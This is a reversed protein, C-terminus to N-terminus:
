RGFCCQMLPRFADNVCMAGSITLHLAIMFPHTLGTFSTPVRARNKFIAAELKPVTILHLKGAEVPDSTELDKTFKHFEELAKVLGVEDDRGADELRCSLTALQRLTTEKLPTAVMALCQDPTVPTTFHRCAEFAQPCLANLTKFNMATPVEEALDTQKLNILRWVPTTRLIQTREPYRAFVEDAPSPAAASASASASPLAPLDKPTGLELLRQFVHPPLARTTLIQLAPIMEYRKQTYRSAFLIAEPYFEIPIPGSLILQKFCAPQQCEITLKVAQLLEEPRSLAGCDILSKLCSTKGQSAAQCAYHTLERPDQCTRIVEVMMASSDISLARRVLLERWQTSLLHIGQQNGQGVCREFIHSLTQPADVAASLEAAISNRLLTINPGWTM